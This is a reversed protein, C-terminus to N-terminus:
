KRRMPFGTERMGCVNYGKVGSRRVGTEEWELDFEAARSFINTIRQRFM